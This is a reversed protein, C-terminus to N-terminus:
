GRNKVVTANTIEVVRDPHEHEITNPDNGEIAPWAIIRIGVPIGKELPTGINKPLQGSLYQILDSKTFNESSIPIGRPADKGWLDPLQDPNELFHTSMTDVVIFDVRYLVGEDPLSELREKLETALLVGEVKSVGALQRALATTPNVVQHPTGKPGFEPM